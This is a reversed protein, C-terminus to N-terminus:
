SSSVPIFTDRVSRSAAETCCVLLRDGSLIRDSGRPVIVDDGRLIAAVISDTPTNLDMLASEPQDPPVVLEIVRAQGQELVALLSSRGGDIQHVVSAVAAGRASLAVDIGVLEFLHLNSPKSVRTIVKRVGLQRGVLCALLNREDNDIVSVMVDSRGIEESELLELDTGDGQLVLGRRLSAALLEGRSQDREIVRFEINSAADLRQALRYGVDGGGIITVVQSMTRTGDPSLRPRLAEMADGAGMLAVKDGAEFRTGGRPITVAEGRKVAVAVVGNPLGAEAVSKDVFPSDPQLKFELLRVKGDAFVGADIAGPAMIIREIAAALQAEPWIVRNIGFHERLSETGGPPRVFDQKSVFCVTERAGLQSGISCAVINVEDLQTCAIFLDCGDVQARRLVDPSTGSGDVFESDVQAFRGAVDPDNDVVFVDHEASLAACLAYGIEGGGVILIRM